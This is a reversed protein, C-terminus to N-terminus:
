ATHSLYFANLVICFAVSDSALLHIELDKPRKLDGNTRLPKLQPSGALLDDQRRQRQARVGRDADATKTV